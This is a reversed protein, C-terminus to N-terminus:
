WEQQGQMHGRTSGKIRVSKGEHARMHEGKEECFRGRTSGKIRM